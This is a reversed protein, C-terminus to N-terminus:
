TCIMHVFEKDAVKITGNHIENDIEHSLKQIQEVKQQQLFLM